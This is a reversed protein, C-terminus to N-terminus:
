SGLESCYKHSFQCIVGDVGIEPLAPFKVGYPEVITKLRVVATRWNEKRKELDLIGFGASRAQEELLRQAPIFTPPLQWFEEPPEFLIGSLSFSDPASNSPSQKKTKKLCRRCSKKSCHWVSASTDAKMADSIKSRKKSYLFILAKTCATSFRQPLSKVSFSLASFSPCRITSLPKKYGTWYRAGNHYLWEINNRALKGLETTPEYGLPGNPTLKNIAKGCVEEHNMEDRTVSFSASESRMKKTLKMPM